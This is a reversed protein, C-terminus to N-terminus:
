NGANPYRNYSERRLVLLVNPVGRTSTILNMRFRFDHRYTLQSLKQMTKVSVQKEWVTLLGKVFQVKRTKPDIALWREIEPKAQVQVSM